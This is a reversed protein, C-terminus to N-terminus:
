NSWWDGFWGNMGNSVPVNEDERTVEDDHELPIDGSGEPPIDGVGDDIAVAADSDIAVAPAQLQDRLLHPGYELTLVKNWTNTICDKTVNGWATIIWQIVLPRTPVGTPNSHRFALFLEKYKDKFPKNIGVDCVQLKGTYGPEVIDYSSGCESIASRVAATKHATYDDVILYCPSSSELTFPEWVLNVWKLMTIEDMWANEQVAYRADAPYTKFEKSEIRGNPKGKFIIFPPLKTGDRAVALFVSARQSAKTKQIRVTRAGRDSITSKPSEDFYVPTEDGNVVCADNFGNKRINENIFHRWDNSVDLFYRTNQAM